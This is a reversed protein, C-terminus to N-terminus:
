YNKNISNNLNFIYDKWSAIGANMAKWAQFFSTVCSKCQSLYMDAQGSVKTRSSQISIMRTSDAKVKDIDVLAPKSITGPLNYSQGVEETAYETAIDASEAELNISDILCEKYVELNRKLVDISAIAKNVADLNYSSLEVLLKADLGQLNKAKYFEAM